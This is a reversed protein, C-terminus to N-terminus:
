KADEAKVRNILHPTLLVYFPGVTETATQIKPIEFMINAANSVTVTMASVRHEIVIPKQIRGYKTNQEDFRVLETFIPQFNETFYRQDSSFEGRMVYSFGTYLKRTAQVHTINEYDSIYEKAEGCNISAGEGNCFTVKLEQTKEGAKLVQAAEEASLADGFGKGYFKLKAPVGDGKCIQLKAEVQISLNKRLQDLFEKISRHMRPTQMVVIRGSRVEVSTGVAWVNLQIQRQIAYRIVDPDGFDSCDYIQMEIDDAPDPKEDTGDKPKQGNEPGAEGAQAPTAACTLMAVWMVLLSLTSYKKV